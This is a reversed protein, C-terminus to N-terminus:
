RPSGLVAAIREAATSWSLERRAWAAIAERDVPGHARAQRLGAAIGAASPEAPFVRPAPGLALLHHLPPGVVPLGFTLALVASGSTFFQQHAMLFVDAAAFLGPVEADPILREDYIVRPDGRGGALEHEPAGDPKGAIILRDDPGAMALFGAIAEGIGKYPRLAGFLLVVWAREPLNLARRADSQVPMAPYAEGYHGHPIVTAPGRYGLEDRLSDIAGPFHVFVHEVADLVALRARRALDPAPDDHPLLNHATWALRVGRAKLRALRREFLKVQTWYWPRVAQLKAGPWHM